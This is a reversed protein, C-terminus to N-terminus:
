QMSGLVFALFRCSLWLFLGLTVLGGLCGGFAKVASQVPAGCHPCTEAKTSVDGSCEKCVTLAM